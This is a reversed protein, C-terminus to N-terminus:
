NESLKSELGSVLRIKKSEGDSFVPCFWYFCTFVFTKNQKRKNKNTKKFPSLLM